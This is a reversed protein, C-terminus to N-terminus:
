GAQNVIIRNPPGEGRQDPDYYLYATPAPATVEVPMTACLRCKLEFEQGAEIALLYVVIARPTIEFKAVRGQAQAEDLEDGAVAFGAPIPLDLIVMPAATALNNRVTATAAIEDTVSLETRDYDIAISLPENSETSEASDVYQRFVIQYASVGEGQERVVLQHEARSYETPLVYQQM